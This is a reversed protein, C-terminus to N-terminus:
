CTFLSLPQEKERGAFNSSKVQLVFNICVVIKILYLSLFLHINELCYQVNLVAINNSIVSHSYVSKPM